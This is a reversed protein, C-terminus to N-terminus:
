TGTQFARQDLVDPVSYPSEKITEIQTEFEKLTPKNVSTNIYRNYYNLFEEM